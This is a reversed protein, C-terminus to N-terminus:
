MFIISFKIVEVSQVLKILKISSFSLFLSNIIASSPLFIKLLFSKKIEDLIENYMYVHKFRYLDKIRNKILVVEYKALDDNFTDENHTSKNKQAQCFEIQQNIFNIPNAGIKDKISNDLNAMFIRQTDLPDDKELLSKVKELIKIKEDNSLKENGQFSKINNAFRIIMEKDRNNLSFVLASFNLFKFYM